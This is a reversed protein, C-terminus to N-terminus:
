PIAHKTIICILAVIRHYSKPKVTTGHKGGVDGGEVLKVADSM